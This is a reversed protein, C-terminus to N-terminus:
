LLNYLYTILSFKCPSCSITATSYHVMTSAANFCCANTNGTVTDSSTMDSCDSGAFCDVTEGNDM